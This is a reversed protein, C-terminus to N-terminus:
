LIMMTDDVDVDVGLAFLCGLHFVRKLFVSKHEDDGDKIM